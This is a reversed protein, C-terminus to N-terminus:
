EQDRGCEVGPAIERILQLAEDCAGRLREFALLLQPRRVTGLNVARAEELDATANDYRAQLQPCSFLHPPPQPNETM